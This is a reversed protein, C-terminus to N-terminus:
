PAGGARMYASISLFLADPASSGVIHLYLKGADVPVWGCAYSFNGSTYNWITLYSPNPLAPGALRALSSASVGWRGNMDVLAMLADSPIGPSGTFDSLLLTYAGKAPVGSGGWAARNYVCNRPFIPLPISTSIAAELGVIGQEIKNMRTADVPTGPTVPTVLEIKASAAVVGASDDTIKYKVPSSQPVENTWNTPTYPM